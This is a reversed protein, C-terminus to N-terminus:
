MGLSCALAVGELAVGGLSGGGLSGGGLSGDGVVGVLFNVKAFKVYRM